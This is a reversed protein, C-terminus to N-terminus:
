YNGEAVIKLAEINLAQDAVINKLRRNEEEFQRLRILDSTELGGYKSRWSYLTAESIGNKRWLDVAKTGTKLEGSFGM